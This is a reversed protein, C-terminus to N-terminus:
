RWAQFLSPRRLRLKHLRSRRPNLISPGWRSGSLLGILVANNVVLSHWLAHLPLLGGGIVPQHQKRKECPIRLIMLKSLIGQLEGSESTLQHLM